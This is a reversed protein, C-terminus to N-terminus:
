LDTLTYNVYLLQVYNFPVMQYIKVYAQIQAPM